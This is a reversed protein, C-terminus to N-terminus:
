LDARDKLPVRDDEWAAHQGQRYRWVEEACIDAIDGRPGSGALLEHDRLVAARVERSTSAKWGGFIVHAKRCASTETTSSEIVDREKNIELNEIGEMDEEVRQMGVYRKGAEGSLLVQLGAMADKSRQAEQELRAKIANMREAQHSDVSRAMLGAPPGRRGSDRRGHGLDTRAMRGWTVLHAM